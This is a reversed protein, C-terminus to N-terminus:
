KTLEDVLEHLCRLYGQQVALTSADAYALDKLAEGHAQQLQRVLVRFAGSSRLEALAKAEEVGRFKGKLMLQDAQAAVGAAADYAM